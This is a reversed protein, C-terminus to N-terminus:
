HADPRAAERALTEVTDPSPPMDPSGIALSIIDHGAAQLAAIEQGKRSFYYESVASLRDAPTITNMGLNKYIM